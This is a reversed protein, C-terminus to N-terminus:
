QWAGSRMKEKFNFDNNLRALLLRALDAPSITYTEQGVRFFYERTASLRQLAPLKVQGKDDIVSLRYEASMPRNFDDMIINFVTCKKKGSQSTIEVKM